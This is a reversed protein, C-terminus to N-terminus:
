LSKYAQREWCAGCPGAKGHDRCLCPSARSGCLYSDCQRHLRSLPLLLWAAASNACECHSGCRLATIDGQWLYIGEQVPTLDALDVIGKQAAEEQLYANQVELFASSVPRPMRINFLARLLRKQESAERPIELEGCSPQEKLLQELLFVRRETQTM